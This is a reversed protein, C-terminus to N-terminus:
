HHTAEIVAPACVCLTNAHTVYLPPPTPYRDTGGCQKDEARNTRRKKREERDVSCHHMYTHVCVCMLYHPM